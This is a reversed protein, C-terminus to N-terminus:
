DGEELKDIRARLAANEQDLKILYLTLEEIKELMMLQLEGVPVSGQEEIDQESPIQPLHKNLRIYLALEDLSMLEYDPEFVYDPFSGRYAVELETCWVKGSGDLQFVKETSNEDKEFLVLPEYRTAPLRRDATLVISGNGWLQFGELVGSSHHFQVGLAKTEANDLSILQGYSYANANRHEILLGNQHSWRLPDNVITLKFNNRTTNTTGVKLQDPIFVMNLGRTGRFHNLTDFRGDFDQAVFFTYDGGIVTPQIDSYTHLGLVPRSSFAPEYFKMSGSNLSNSDSPALVVQVENYSPNQAYVDLSLAYLLIFPVTRKLTKMPCPVFALLDLNLHNGFILQVSKYMQDCVNHSAFLGLCALCSELGIVVYM